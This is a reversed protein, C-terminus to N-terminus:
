LKIIFLEEAHKIRGQHDFKIEGTLGQYDTNRMAEHVSQNRYAAQKLAKVIVTIGDYTYAAIAGPNRKYKEVYAAKYPLQDARLWTGSSLVHYGDTNEQGSNLEPAGSLSLNTYIPLRLGATILDQQIAAVSLGQGILIIAATNLNKIDNIEEASLSTHASLKQSSLRLGQRNKAAEVLSKYAQEADYSQEYIVRVSRYQKETYLTELLKWAQQDDTPVLSFYYPVYAKSLTPDSAWASVYLLQTKAIVQEALHSNRGGIAGLIAQVKEDFVLQVVEKSGTGWPGEVSRILLKLKKGEVGGHNNIGEVAMRAAFSAEVETDRDVLLGITLADLAPEENQALVAQLSILFVM